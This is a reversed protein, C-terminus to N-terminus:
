SAWKGSNDVWIAKFPASRMKMGCAEGRPVVSSFYLDHIRCRGALAYSLPRKITAHLWVPFFLFPNVKGPRARRILGEPSTILFRRCLNESNLSVSLPDIHLDIAPYPTISPTNVELVGRTDFFHRIQKLFGARFILDENSIGPRWSNM